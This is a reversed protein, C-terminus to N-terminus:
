SKEVNFKELKCKPHIKRRIAFDEPGDWNILMIGFKECMVFESTHGMGSHEKIHPCGYCNKVRIIRTMKKGVNITIIFNSRYWYGCHDVVNYVLAM